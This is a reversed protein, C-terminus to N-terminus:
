GNEQSWAPRVRAGVDGCKTCRLKPEFSSVTADDPWADVNVIMHNLCRFCIASLSRAGRSRMVGLTMEPTPRRSM